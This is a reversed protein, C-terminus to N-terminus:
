RVHEESRNWKTGQWNHIIGNHGCTPCHWVIADSPTELTLRISGQCSPVRCRVGSDHDQIPLSRSAEDILLTLFSALQRAEAPMEGVLEGAENLYHTIDTVYTGSM